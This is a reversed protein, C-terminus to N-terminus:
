LVPQLTSLLKYDAVVTLRPSRLWWRCSSSDVLKACYVAVDAREVLVLACHLSFEYLLISLSVNPLRRPLWRLM